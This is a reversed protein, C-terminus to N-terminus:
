MQQGLSFTGEGTRSASSSSRALLTRRRTLCGPESAANHRTRDAHCAPPPSRLADHVNRPRPRAHKLPVSLQYVQAATQPIGPLSPASAPGAVVPARARPSCAPSALGQEAAVRVQPEGDATVVQGPGVAVAQDQAAESGQGDHESGDPVPLVGDPGMSGLSVGIVM